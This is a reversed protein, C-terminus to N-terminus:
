KGGTIHSHIAPWLKEPKLDDRGLILLHESSGTDNQLDERLAVVSPTDKTTVLIARAEEGGMQTARHLIEFAKNKYHARKTATTVSIGCLQYGNLVLVDIEFDKEASHRKVHQGWSLHWHSPAKEQLIAYIYYELWKGDLYEVNKFWEDFKTGSDPILLETTKHFQWSQPAPFCPLLRKIQPYFPSATLGNMPIPNPLKKYTLKKHEADFFSPTIFDDRWQLFDIILDAAIWETFIANVASWDPERSVKGLQCDHLALLDIFPLDIEPRLDHTNEQEGDFKLKFERADLYSYSTKELDATMFVALYAHVVMNKTGGTYNLHFAGGKRESTSLAKKIEERILVAESPSTLECYTFQFKADPFQRQLVKELRAAIEKTDASFVAIISRLEPIHKIFYKATVYNPLPNKGILLMLHDFQKM